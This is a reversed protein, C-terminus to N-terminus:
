NEVVSIWNAFCVPILMLLITGQNLIKYKDQTQISQTKNIGLQRNNRGIHINKINILLHLTTICLIITQYDYCIDKIKFQTALDLTTKFSTM